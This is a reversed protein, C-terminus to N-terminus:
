GSSTTRTLGKGRKARDMPASTKTVRRLALCTHALAPPRVVCASDIQEHCEQRQADSDSEGEREDSAPLDVRTDTSRLSGLLGGQRVIWAPHASAVSKAGEVYPDVFTWVTPVNLPQVRLAISVSLTARGVHVKRALLLAGSAEM